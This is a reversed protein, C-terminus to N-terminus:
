ANDAGLANGCHPCFRANKPARTQCKPCTHTASKGEKGSRRLAAIEREVGAEVADGGGRGETQDLAKLVAVAQAEYRARAQRYDDEEVKGMRYDFDLERITEYLMEREELLSRRRGERRTTRGIEVRTGLLPYFVFGVVAATIVIYAAAIM